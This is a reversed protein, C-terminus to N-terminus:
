RAGTHGGGRCVPGRREGAPPPAAARGRWEGEVPVDPDDVDGMDWPRLEGVDVHRSACWTSFRALARRVAAPTAHAGTKSLSNAFTPVGLLALDPSGSGPGAALWDGARLWRPDRPLAAPAVEHETVAGVTTAGSRYRQRRM